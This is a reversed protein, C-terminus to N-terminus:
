DLKIEASSVMANWQKSEEAILKVLDQQSRIRSETGLKALQAQIDPSKLGDDIAANLKRDGRGADQRARAGPVM